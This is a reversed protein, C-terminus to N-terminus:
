KLRPDFLVKKDLSQFVRKTIELGAVVFNEKAIAVGVGELEPDVLNDTTIDAYGIDEKLAIEILDDISHM